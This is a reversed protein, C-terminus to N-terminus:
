AQWPQQQGQEHCTEGEDAKPPLRDLDVESTKGTPITAQRKQKALKVELNRRMIKIERIIKNLTKRKEEHQRTILMCRGVYKKLREMQKSQKLIEDDKENLMQHLRM